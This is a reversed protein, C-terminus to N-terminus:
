CRARWLVHVLSYGALIVYLSLFVWPIAIEIHTFPLYLGRNEGRGVTVWEADYPALPLKAEIAHIVKFKGTNLGKYSRVLRYWCYCVVGGASYVTVLWPVLLEAPVRYAVFGVFVLLAMNASLFFANASQRRASIRDAMEVCLKYQELLHSRYHAGYEAERVKFLNEQLEM